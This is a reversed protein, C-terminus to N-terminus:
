NFMNLFDLVLSTLVLNELPYYDINDGGPIEYIAGLYWSLDSWFNGEQIGSYDQYWTNQGNDYVQNHYYHYEWDYNNLAFNNHHFLNGNSDDIDCAVYENYLFTNYTVNNNNCDDMRLGYFNEEIFNNSINFGNCEQIFLTHYGTNSLTNDFILGNISEKILMGEDNNTLRNSTVNLFSSTYIYIAQSDLNQFENKVLTIDSSSFMRFGYRFGTILNSDILINEAFNLEIGSCKPYDNNITLQLSNNVMSIMTSNDITIAQKFDLITNEKFTLNHVNYCSIAKDSPIAQTSIYKSTTYSGQFTNQEILCNQVNNFFLFEDTYAGKLFTNKEIIISGEVCSTINIPNIVAKLTCNRIIFHSTVGEIYIAYDKTTIIELDAIIYPDSITGSGPFDYRRKFDRDKDIYIEAIALKENVNKRIIFFATLGGISGLIIIVIVWGTIKRGLSM